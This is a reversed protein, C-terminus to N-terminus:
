FRLTANVNGGAPTLAGEVSGPPQEDPWLTFSVAVGGSILAAGALVDTVRSLLQVRSQRQELERRISAPDGDHPTRRAEDYRHSSIVTAVASALALTTLTGTSVWAVTELHDGSAVHLPTLTLAVQAQEQAHVAVNLSTSAYGPRTVTVRHSGADVLVPQTLPSRGVDRDDIHILAGAVDVAVDVHGTYQRLTDLQREVLARRDAPMEVVRDLYSRLASWALARQGLEYHLQGLTFLLRPEHYLSYARLFEALAEAHHGQQYHRVGNAHHAQALAKAGPSPGEAPIAASLEARSATVAEQAFASSAGLVLGMCASWACRCHSTLKASM